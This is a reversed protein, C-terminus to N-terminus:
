NGGLKKLIRKHSRDVCKKIHPRRGRLVGKIIRGNELIGTLDPKKNRIRWICDKEEKYWGEKYKGTKEPSHKELEKITINAEEDFIDHTKQEIYDTQTQIDKWIAKGIDYM